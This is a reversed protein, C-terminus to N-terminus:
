GQRERNPLGSVFLDLIGKAADIWVLKSLAQLRERSM